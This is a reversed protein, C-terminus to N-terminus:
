TACGGLLQTQMALLYCCIRGTGFLAANDVRPQAPLRTGIGGGTVRLDPSWLAVAENEFCREMRKEVM